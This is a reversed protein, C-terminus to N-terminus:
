VGWAQLDEEPLPDFYSDPLTPVDVFDFKRTPISPIAENSTAPLVIIDVKTNRLTPPLDFLSDLLNSAITKRVFTM